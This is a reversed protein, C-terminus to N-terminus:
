VQEPIKEKVKEQRIKQIADEAANTLQYAIPSATLAPHTGCQFIAIDDATMRHQICPSMTNIFEGVSSDGSVQAGLLIGSIKNFVLKIAIEKAGPMGGPHRNITKAEGCVTEYGILNAMRETLGASGLSIGGISTSFVGIEGPNERRLSYLNAGAVRAEMTAVSALMLPVPKGTFFSVSGACDGCAFIHPDNTRMFRDVRIFGMSDLALGAAEALNVNSKAGISVLVADAKLVTGDSLKVERVSDDGIIEEVGTERFIRIGKEELAVEVKECFFEDYGLMLCHPLMEVVSINIDRNKKCEDAFEVGIFGGGIIVLDRIENMVDLLYELYSIDKNVKFVNRKEIGPIPVTSPESGTAIILRDYHQKEGSQLSVSKEERNISTVGDILLDIDNKSLVGDSILNKQPSMVTGYIYPIGCPIPVQKEKRILLVSKEPYHRHVTIAAPIGAASGGIIIVDYNNM